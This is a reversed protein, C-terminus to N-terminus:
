TGPSRRDDAWAGNPPGSMSSWGALIFVGSWLSARRSIAWRVVSVHQPMGAARRLVDEDRAVSLFTVERQRRNTACESRLDFGAATLQRALRRWRRRAQGVHWPHRFVISTVSVVRPGLELHDGSM